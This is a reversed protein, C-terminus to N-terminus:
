ETIRGTSECAFTRILGTSHREKRIVRLGVPDHTPDQACIVRKAKVLDHFSSSPHRSVGHGMAAIEHAHSSHEVFDSHM